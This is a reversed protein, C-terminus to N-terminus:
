LPAARPLSLRTAFSTREAASPDVRAASCRRRDSKLSPPASSRRGSWMRRSGFATGLRSPKFQLRAATAALTKGSSGRLARQWRRTDHRLLRNAPAPLCVRPTMAQLLWGGWRVYCRFCKFHHNTDKNKLFKLFTPLLVDKSEGQHQCSCCTGNGVTTRPLLHFQQFVFGITSNRTKALETTSMSSVQKGALEYDGFDPTDLLGLINMLTSKGSGSPGVIAVFEGSQVELNVQDLVKLKGEGPRQYSKSINHIKIM